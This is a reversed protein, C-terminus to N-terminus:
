HEGSCSECKKFLEKLHLSFNNNIETFRFKKFVANWNTLGSELTLMQRNFAYNGAARILYEAIENEEGTLAEQNECGTIEFDIIHLQTGQPYVAIYGLQQEDQQATLVRAGQMAKCKSLINQELQHNETPKVCLM